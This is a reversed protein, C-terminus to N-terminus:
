APTGLLKPAAFSPPQPNNGGVQVQEPTHPGRGRL